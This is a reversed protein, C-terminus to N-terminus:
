ETLLVIYIDGGAHNPLFSPDFKLVRNHKDSSREKPAMAVQEQAIDNTESFTSIYKWRGHSVGPVTPVSSPYIGVWDTCYLDNLVM